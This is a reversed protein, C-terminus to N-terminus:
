EHNIEKYHMEVDRIGSVIFSVILFLTSLMFSAFFLWAFSYRIIIFSMVEFAGAQFSILQLLSYTAEELSAYELFVRGFFGAGLIAFIYLFVAYVSVASFFSPLLTKMVGLFQVVKMNKDLYRLLRLLRFSRLVVFYSISPIISIVVVSLDLINWGKTFFKGGYAYIKLLMECIFIAVILRDLVFLEFNLYAKVMPSALAGLILSDLLILFVILSSFNKGEVLDKAKARDKELTKVVM